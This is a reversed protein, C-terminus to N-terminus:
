FRGGVYPPVDQLKLEVSSNGSRVYFKDQKMGNPGTTQLYVPDNGPRIEISCIEIDNVKPFDIKLNSAAFREGFSRNVLNRLHIEFEDKTGNISEYDFELGM